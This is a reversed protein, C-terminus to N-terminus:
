FTKERKRHQATFANQTKGDSILGVIDSFNEVYGSLTYQTGGDAATFKFLRGDFTGTLPLKKNERLWFGTVDSGATGSQKLTIHSYYTKVRTQLEIEWVGDLTTFQPPAPTGSGSPSPNPSGSPEPTGRRGRRPAPTPTPTVVPPPITPLVTPATSAPPLQISPSATPNGPIPPPPTPPVSQAAGEGTVLGFLM